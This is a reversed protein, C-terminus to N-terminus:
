HAYSFTKRAVHTTIINTNAKALQLDIIKLTYKSGVLKNNTQRTIKIRM